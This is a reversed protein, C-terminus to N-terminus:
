RKVDQAQQVTVLKRPDWRPNEPQRIGFRDRAGNGYPNNLVRTCRIRYDVGEHLHAHLWLDPQWRAIHDDLNSCFYGGIPSGAFHPSQSRYSPAFHSLVVTPGPHPAKFQAELWAVTEDFRDILRGVTLGEVTAFDGVQRACADAHRGGALDSWLTAGLFRVGRYVFAQRELVRVHPMDALVLGWDDAAEDLHLYEYDHNGLVMLIPRDAPLSQLGMRLMEPSCQWDGLIVLVDGVIDHPSLVWGNHHAHLDSVVQIRM